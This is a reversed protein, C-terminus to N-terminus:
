KTDSQSSPLFTNGFCVSCDALLTLTRSIICLAEPHQNLSLLLNLKQSVSHISPVFFSFFFFFLDLWCLTMVLVKDVMSSTHLTFIDTKWKWQKQHDKPETIDPRIGFLPFRPELRHKPKTSLNFKNNNKDTKVYLDLKENEQKLHNPVHM